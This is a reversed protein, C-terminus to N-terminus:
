GEGPDDYIPDDPNLTLMELGLEQAPTFDVCGEPIRPFSWSNAEIKGDQTDELIIIVKAM